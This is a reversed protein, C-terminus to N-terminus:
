GEASVIRKGKHVKREEEAKNRIKYASDRIIGYLVACGDDKSVAEGNDSLLTLQRALELAEKIYCDSTKAM